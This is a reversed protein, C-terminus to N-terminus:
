RVEFQEIKPGMYTDPDDEMVRLVEKARHYERYVGEVFFDKSSQSQYSVVWVKM